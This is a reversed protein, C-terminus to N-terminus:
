YNFMHYKAFPTYNENILYPSIFLGDLKLQDRQLGCQREENVNSLLFCIVIQILEGYLSDFNAINIQQPSTMQTIEKRQLTIDSISERRSDKMGYDKKSVMLVIIMEIITTNM